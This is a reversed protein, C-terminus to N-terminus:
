VTKKNNNKCVVIGLLLFSLNFKEQKTHPFNITHHLFTNIFISTWKVSQQKM